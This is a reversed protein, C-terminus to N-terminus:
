GGELEDEMQMLKHEAKRLFWLVEPSDPASSAFYFAGDKDLGLVIVAELGDELASSLVRQPDLDLRTIGPFNIIEAM